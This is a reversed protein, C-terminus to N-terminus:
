RCGLASCFPCDDKRTLRVAVVDQANADYLLLRGSLDDSRGLSLKITEVAQLSGIVGAAAGLVGGAACTPLLRDDVAPGITCYLCPHPPGDFARFTTLQGDLGQVAASVLPKGARMAADHVVRRTALNDCGDAVIGFGDLLRCANDADIRQRIPIIRCDPNLARCRAALAEVKPHGIDDVTYFLQRHLNSVHVIDDDIVGITGIGAAALYAVLPCGLGGAGVVVVRAALMRQQGRGGIEPLVIQRAYREIHNDDLM